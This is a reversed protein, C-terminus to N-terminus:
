IGYRVALHLYFVAGAIIRPGEYPTVRHELPKTSMFIIRVSSKELSLFEVKKLDPPLSIISELEKRFEVTGTRGNETEYHLAYSVDEMREFRVKAGKPIEITPSGEETAFIVLTDVFLKSADKKMQNAEALANALARTSDTNKVVRDGHAYMAWAVYGFVAIMIVSGFNKKWWGESKKGPVVTAGTPAVAAKKPRWGSKYVVIAILGLVGITLIFWQTLTM